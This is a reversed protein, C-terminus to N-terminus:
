NQEEKWQLLAVETSALLNKVAGASSSRQLNVAANPQM